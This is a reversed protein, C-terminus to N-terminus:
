GNTRNRIVTRGQRDAPRDRPERGAEDVLKVEEERRHQDAATRLRERCADPRRELQEVLAAELAADHM